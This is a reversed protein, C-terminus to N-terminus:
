SNKNNRFCFLRAIEVVALSLTLKTVGLPALEFKKSSSIPVIIKLTSFWFNAKGEIPCYSDTGEFVLMKDLQGIKQQLDLM